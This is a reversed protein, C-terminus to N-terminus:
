LSFIKELKIQNYDQNDIFILSNYDLYKIKSFDINLFNIDKFEKM